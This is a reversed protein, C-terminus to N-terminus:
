PALGDRRTWGLNALVSNFAVGCAEAVRPRVADLVSPWPLPQLRTGSYAYRAGADGIWCSLRPSDVERGFLRIRHTAWPLDHRLAQLLADAADAPMWHPDFAVRAGPLPVPQLAM